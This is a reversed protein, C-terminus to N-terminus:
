RSLSIGWWRFLLILCYAITAGIKQATSNILGSCSSGNMTTNQPKSVAVVRSAGKCIKSM